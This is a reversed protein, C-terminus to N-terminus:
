HNFAVRSGSGPPVSTFTVEQGATKALARLASDSFTAGTSSAFTNATPSFLFGRIVGNQVVSAVLDCETVPGGLIKSTFMAGARQELLSIRAGVSGSNQSTLTVQQGVIPALDSDFALMFQEVDRRTGDTNVQPFGSNILPNFVLAHFFSFMTDVSGENTFGFGRIQPGEDGTDRNNFFPVAPLGFMGVKTYMNRLHPIKFIQM